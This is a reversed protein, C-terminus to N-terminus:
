DDLVALDLKELRAPDTIVDIRSITNDGITLALVLVLRGRPAMVIGPTGNGVQLGAV